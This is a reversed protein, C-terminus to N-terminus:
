PFSRLNGILLASDLSSCVACLHLSGKAFKWTLYKTVPFKHRMKAGLAERMLSRDFPM